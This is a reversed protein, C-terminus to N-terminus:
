FVIMEGTLVFFSDILIINAEKLIGQAAAKTGTEKERWRMRSRVYHHCRSFVPNMLQLLVRAHFQIAMWLLSFCNNSGTIMVFYYEM